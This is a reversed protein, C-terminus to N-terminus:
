IAFKKKLILGIVKIFVSVGHVVPSRKLKDNYNTTIPVEKVKINKESALFQMESEVSLGKEKFIMNNIASLSFARFGSQSDTLKIGSGLNTTLTLINQGIKRYDPIKNKCLLLRSGVVIDCEENLVPELLFPIEDPNHQNDGDLLVLVLPRIERALNFATNVAAGKGMNSHHKIITAGAAQAIEGTKDKSGDDIVFVQDVYRIAKKVVEEIHREENYAPIVAIIKSKEMSGVLNGEEKNGYFQLM